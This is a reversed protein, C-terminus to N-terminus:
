PKLMGPGGRRTSHRVPSCRFKLNMVVIPKVVHTIPVHSIRSVYALHSGQHPLGIQCLCQLAFVWARMAPPSEPSNQDIHQAYVPWNKMTRERASIAAM